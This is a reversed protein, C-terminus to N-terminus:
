IISIPFFISVDFYDDVSLFHNKRYHVFAPTTKLKYASYPLWEDLVRSLWPLLDGYSGTFDFVAHLGGPITMQNVVGRKTLPRDITLCAVYRCEHLAVWAPNSHHLGIQQGCVSKSLSTPKTTEQELERIVIGEEMAWAELLMWPQRISRGYGQHRIYAVRQDILNVLEPRPLDQSAIREYGAKIEPDSMYPAGLYASQCHREELKRWEGPAVGFQKKFAQSFSSLSIFGCKEAVSLVSSYRDFMLQNAAHELRIRRIYVNVSEGVVRKFVRHFHQESYSATKALERATLPASIDKHVRYLVENIQSQQLRQSQKM